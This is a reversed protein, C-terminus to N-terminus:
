DRSEQPKCSRFFTTIDDLVPVGKLNWWTLAALIATHDVDSYIRSQICGGRQRIRGELKELNALKVATDRNGYLLLMPPQTGDIFTTVQMRPYNQPPGFMDELDPEDPTFAYPGALGAFDYITLSRDKGEDSLYQPDATLLAAIHAGASHGLVHIRAPNGHWETIHDSVWALAKAGDQIFVPFRVQPYKRYDPIVVVFGKEALTAGVFRYDEKAGNTWRGGYFFVIVDLARGRADNPRYIDLKQVPDPGYVYDHLVTTNSFYAPLNATMFALRTCGSLPVFLGVLLALGCWGTMSATVTAVRLNLFGLSRM